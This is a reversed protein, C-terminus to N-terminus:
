PPSGARRRRPAARRFASVSADGTVWFRWPVDAAARVGVRPGVSVPPASTRPLLTAREGSQEGRLGLVRALAAPGRALHEDRRDPSRTRAADLGDEVAGARLLVASATGDPGTVLNACWHVGYVFYVYYHGAPGFMVATRPTRGRFAHSAPDSEGAYAEVETLRVTVGARVLRCGLLDPAVQDSPRSLGARDM